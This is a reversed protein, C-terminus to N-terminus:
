LPQLAGGPYEGRRARRPAAPPRHVRRCSADLSRDDARHARNGAHDRTLRYPYDHCDAQLLRGPVTRGLKRHSPVRRRRLGRGAQHPLDAGLRPATVWLAHEGGAHRFRGPVRRKTNGFAEGQRCVMLRWWDVRSCGCRAPSRAPQRSRTKDNLGNYKSHDDTRLPAAPDALAPLDLPSLRGVKEWYCKPDLPWNEAQYGSPRSELLPVDIVDLVRPDSGDEYRREYESVEGGDRASIPRIWGGAATGNWERGAVCRGHLTRSNALCVLRKTSPM